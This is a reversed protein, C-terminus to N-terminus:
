AMVRALSRWRMQRYRYILAAFLAVLPTLVGAHIQVTDTYRCANESIPEFTLTHNWTRVPGGHESSAIEGDELRDIRLTHTWGPLLGLFRLRARLQDGEAVVDALPTTPTMQLWPWLVYSLLAPKRALRCADAAAIPLQTSVRVRMPLRGDDDIRLLQEHKDVRM